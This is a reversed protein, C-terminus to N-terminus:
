FGVLTRRRGSLVHKRDDGFPLVVEKEDTTYLIAIGTAVSVPRWVEFKM